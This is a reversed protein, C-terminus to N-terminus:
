ETTSTADTYITSTGSKLVYYNKRLSDIELLLSVLFVGGYLSSQFIDLKGNM